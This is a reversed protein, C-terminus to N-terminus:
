VTQDQTKTSELNLYSYLEEPTDVVNDRNKYEWSKLLQVVKTLKKRATLLNKYEWSKLLQVVRLKNM